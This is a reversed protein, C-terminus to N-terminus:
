HPCSSPPVVGCSVKEETGQYLPTTIGKAAALQSVIATVTIGHRNHLIALLRELSIDGERVILKCWKTFGQHTVCM